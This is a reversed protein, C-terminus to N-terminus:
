CEIKSPNVSSISSEKECSKKEGLLLYSFLSLLIFDIIGFFGISDVFYRAFVVLVLINVMLNRFFIRKYLMYLYTIFLIIFPFVGFRSHMNIFSNHPNIKFAVITECCSKFDVGFLFGKWDTMSSIYEALMISRESDVGHSFNSNAFLSILIDQYFYVIIIGAFVISIIYVKNKQAVALLFLFISLAIGSRGFLFFCCVVVTAPYILNINIMEKKCAFLYYALFIVLHASIYNRSGDLLNNYADPNYGIHLIHYITWCLSLTLLFRAAQYSFDFERIIYSIQIALTVYIVYLFYNKDDSEVHYLGFAIVYLLM